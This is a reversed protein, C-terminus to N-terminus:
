SRPKRSRDHRPLRAPRGPTNTTVSVAATTLPTAATKLRADKAVSARAEVEAKMEAATKTGTPDLAEYGKGALTLRGEIFSVLTDTDAEPNKLGEFYSRAMSVHRPSKTEFVIAAVEAKMEAATKTGAPDLAEYGKRAHNLHHEILSVHFEIDVGAVERLIEFNRRAKSVFGDSAYTEVEARMQDETKKGTPDLAKYGVGDKEVARKLLAFDATPNKITKLDEFRRRAYAIAERRQQSDSRKAM